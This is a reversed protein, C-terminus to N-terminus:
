MIQDPLSDDSSSDSSSDSDFAIADEKPSIPLAEEVIQQLPTGTFSHTESRSSGLLSSFFQDIAIYLSLLIFIQGKIDYHIFYCFFLSMFHTIFLGKQGKAALKKTHKRILKKAQTITLQRAFPSTEPDNENLEGQVENQGENKTTKQVFAKAKRRQHSFIGKISTVFGDGAGDTPRKPFSPPLKDSKGESDVSPSDLEPGSSSPLQIQGKDKFKKIQM